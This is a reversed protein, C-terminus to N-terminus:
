AVKMSDIHPLSFKDFEIKAAEYLAIDMANIESLYDITSASEQQKKTKGKNLIEPSSLQFQDNFAHNIRDISKQMDSLLGFTTLTNFLVDIAHDVSPRVTKVALSGCLWKTQLNGLTAFQKLETSSMESLTKSSRYNGKTNKYCFFYYHSIFRSLPERLITFSLDDAKTGQPFYHGAIVRFEDIENVDKFKQDFNLKHSEGPVLIKNDQYNCQIASQYISRRLSVGGCKPIHIFVIKPKRRGQM